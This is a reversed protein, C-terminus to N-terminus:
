GKTKKSSTLLQMFKSNKMKAKDSVDTIKWEEDTDDEDAWDDELFEDEIVEVREYIFREHIIGFDQCLVIFTGFDIGLPVQFLIEDQQFCAINQEFLAIKFPVGNRNNQGQGVFFGDRDPRFSVRKLFLNLDDIRM